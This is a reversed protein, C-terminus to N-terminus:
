AVGSLIEQRSGFTNNADQVTRDLERIAQGVNGGDNVAKYIAAVGTAIQDAFATMNNDFEYVRALEDENVKVADFFGAYGQPADKIKGILGMLRNDIRGLPEAHDIALLIDRSLEEHVSSLELRTAELRDSLTRRLIEDAERRRSKEMYGSFGPIKSAIKGLFTSEDQIKEYMDPVSSDKM